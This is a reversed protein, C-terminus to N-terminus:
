RSPQALHIALDAASSYPDAGDPRRLHPRALHDTVARFILARLLYQPFTPDELMPQVVEPRAGEFVLADAIVVASAFAPPRWYPSFDIVLPPLHPHFLVNGTLDGHVLQAAGPVPRLAQILEDLHKTGAYEKAPLEAWAVRDAIAWLDTRNAILAPEPEDQLAVHLRQGVAVIELWRGPLHVGPQYRWATWGHSTWGGDTTALPVSVRLDDRGDLRALLEAQWRLASLPMDLPKIVAAGVLWSRGQGGSLPAPEGKLDFAALVAACPGATAPAEVHEVGLFTLGRSAPGPQREAM